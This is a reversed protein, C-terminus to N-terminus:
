VSKQRVDENIARLEPRSRLLEVIDQFTYDPREPLFELLIQHILEFDAEEDVTLRYMSADDDRQIYGLRFVEPRRYLYLTVHEREARDQSESHAQMLGATRFAEVDMGRPYTEDIGTCVYDLREADLKELALEVLAPDLLPCDSTVRVIRDLDHERVAGVFRELVDDESGRWVPVNLEACLSVIPEDTTNTTTAVIVVDAGRVRRLRELLHTLLPRGRVERLVKGPLRTSTMRAQVIVGTRGSM